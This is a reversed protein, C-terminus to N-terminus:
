PDQSYLFHYTYFRETKTEYERLSQMTIIGTTGDVGVMTGYDTVAYSYLQETYTNGNKDQKEASASLTEVLATDGNYIKYEGDGERKEVTYTKGDFDVFSVTRMVGTIPDVLIRTGTPLLYVGAADPKYEKGEEDVLYYEGKHMYCTYVAKDVDEYKRLRYFAYSGEDNSVSISQMEQRTTYPFILIRDNLGVQENGITDVTAYKSM